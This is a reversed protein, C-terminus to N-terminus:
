ITTIPIPKGIKSKNKHKDVYYPQIMAPKGLWTIPLDLVCDISSSWGLFVPAPSDIVPDTILYGTWFVLFAGVPLTKVDPNLSDIAKVSASLHDQSLIAGKPCNEPVIIHVNSAVREFLRFKLRDTSTLEPWYTLNDLILDVKARIDEDIVDREGRVIKNTTTDDASIDYKVIFELLRGTLYISEASTIPTLRSIETNVYPIVTRYYKDREGLEKPIRGLLESM